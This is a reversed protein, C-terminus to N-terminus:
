GARVQEGGALQPHPARAQPVDDREEAVLSLLVDVVIEEAGSWAALATPTGLPCRTRPQIATAVGDRQEMHPRLPQRGPMTGPRSTPPKTNAHPTQPCARVPPGCAPPASSGSRFPSEGPRRRAAVACSSPM